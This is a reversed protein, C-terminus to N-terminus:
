TLFKKFGAPMSQELNAAQKVKIINKFKGTQAINNKAKKAFFGGATGRSQGRTIRNVKFPLKNFKAELEDNYVEREKMWEPTM